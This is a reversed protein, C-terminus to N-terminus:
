QKKKRYRAETPAPRQLTSPRIPFFYNSRVIGLLRGPLLIRIVDSAWATWVGADRASGSRVGPRRVRFESRVGSGSISGGTSKAGSYQGVDQAFVKLVGLLQEQRRQYRNVVRM